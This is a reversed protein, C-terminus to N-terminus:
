QEDEEWREAAYKDIEVRGIIRYNDFGNNEVTYVHNRIPRMIVNQRREEETLHTNLEHMVMAYESKPLRITEFDSSKLAFMQLNITGDAPKNKLGGVKGYYTGMREPKEPIGAAESIKRYYAHLDSIDRRAKRRAESDGSAKAAMAADQRYRIATEIKRQQQTWEYRTKTKGDITIQESSNQRFEELEEDSYAPESIGMIIPSWSHRCNWEGFPRPLEKQIKAFEENSFQRGQYELHDEACMMHASIEVGDAGFEKGLAEMNAQNLKRIGDLINQRVASDLRKTRGNPYEVSPSEWKLRLGGEAAEQMARRIASNYDEVGAQAAQIGKDVANQYLESDITTRSLNKMEGATVKFQALLSQMLFDDPVSKGFWAEAFRANDQAIAEFVAAIDKISRDATDAIMRQIYQQNVRMRKMQILRTQASPILEGIEKLQTGMRRLYEDTVKQMRDQFIKLIDDLQKDTMM